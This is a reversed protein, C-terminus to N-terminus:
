GFRRQWLEPRSAESKLPVLDPTTWVRNFADLGETDIVQAVSDAALNLYKLTEVRQRTEALDRYRLTAHPSIEGTPVPAGLLKTTIQQDAWYAHGEMLFAYDRDAIGRQDPYLTDMLRWAASNAAYQAVHTLEHSVIKNLTPEDKLRGAERIAQPLVVIEPHGQQFELVQAGIMPWIIRRAHYVSAIKAKAASRSSRSPRLERAETRLQRKAKRRHAALWMRVTMMRIIVTDPLALGTVAEVLPAIPEM